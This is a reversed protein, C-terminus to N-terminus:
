ATKEGTARMANLRTLLLATAEQLMPVAQPTGQRRQELAKHCFAELIPVPDLVRFTANDASLDHVSM